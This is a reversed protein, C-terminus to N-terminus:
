VCHSSFFPLALLSYLCSLFSSLILCLCLHPAPISLSLFLFPLSMPKTMVTEEGMTPFIHTWMSWYDAQFLWAQQMWELRAIASMTAQNAFLKNDGWGKMQKRRKRGCGKKGVGCADADQKSWCDGAKGPWWTVLFCAAGKKIRRALRLHVCVACAVAWTTNADPSLARIRFILHQGTLGFRGRHRFRGAPSLFSDGTKPFACSCHYDLPSLWGVLTLVSHVPVSSPRLIVKKMENPMNWINRWSNRKQRNFKSEM